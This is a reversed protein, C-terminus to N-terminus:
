IEKFYQGHFGPTIKGPLPIRCQESLDRADLILLFSKGIKERTVLSILYGDDERVSDIKPVFYPEGAYSSEEFWLLSSGDKVNIKIIANDFYNGKVGVGYCFSYSKFRYDENIIPLEIHEQSLGKGSVTEAVTDITLRTLISPEKISREESNMLDKVLLSDVIANTPYACLDVVVNDGEDVANVSHFAFMAAASVKCKVSGTDRCIVTIQTKFEPKWKYVTIYRIWGFRLLLSVPFAVLPHEVHLIYNKSMSFSHAYSPYQSTLSAITSRKLESSNSDSLYYTTTTSKGPTVEFNVLEGTALDTIPHAATLQSDSNLKDDYGVEGLTELSVADFEVMGKSETLAFYKAGKKLISVNNNNGTRRGTIVERIYEWWSFVPVTRFHPRKIDGYKECDIYAKSKLYKGSYLVSGSSFRISQIFALGDFWHEFQRSRTQLAGPGNKLYIGGYFEEPVKGSSPAIEVSGIEKMNGSFISM